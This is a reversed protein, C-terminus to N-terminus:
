TSFSPASNSSIGYPLNLVSFLFRQATLPKKTDLIWGKLKRQVTELSQNGMKFPSIPIAINKIELNIPSYLKWFSSTFIITFNPNNEKQKTVM